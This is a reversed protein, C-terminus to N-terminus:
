QKDAEDDGTTRVRHTSIEAALRRLSLTRTSPAGDDASRCWSWPLPSDLPPTPGLLDDLDSSDESDNPTM